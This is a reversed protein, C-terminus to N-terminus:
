PEVVTVINSCASPRAADYARVRYCSIWVATSDNPPRSAEYTFPDVSM